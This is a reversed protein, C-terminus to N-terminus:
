NKDAKAGAYQEPYPTEHGRQAHWLIRNLTDEDAEDADDFNLALSKEAWFLAKGTLKKLPPNM